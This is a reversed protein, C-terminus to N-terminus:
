EVLFVIEQAFPVKLAGVSLTFIVFILSGGLILWNPKTNQHEAEHMKSIESEKVGSQRLKKIRLKKLFQSFFVGTVSVAPIILAYIYIKGYLAIKAEQNLENVDSFLIVNALSVLVVGGIIAFRGLTQM